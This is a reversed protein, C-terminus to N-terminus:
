RNIIVPATVSATDDGVQMSRPNSMREQEQQQRMQEQRELEQQAQEDRENTGM